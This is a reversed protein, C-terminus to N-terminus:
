LSYTARISCVARRGDDDRADEESAWCLTRDGGSTLDGDHGIERAGESRALEVAEDYGEVGGTSVYLTRGGATVTYGAATKLKTTM